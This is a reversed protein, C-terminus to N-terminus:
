GGGITEDLPFTVGISSENDRKVTFSVTARKDSPGCSCNCGKGWTLSALACLVAATAFHPLSPLPM